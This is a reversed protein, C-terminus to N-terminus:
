PAVPAVLTRPHPVPVIIRPRSWPARSVPSVLVVACPRSSCSQALALRARSRLPSVLVFASSRSPAVLARPRTYASLTHRPRPLPAPARSPRFPPSFHAILRSLPTLAYSPRAHMPLVPTHPPDPRPHAAPHVICM